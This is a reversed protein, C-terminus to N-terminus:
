LTCLSLLHMEKHLITEEDLHVEKHLYDYIDSTILYTLNSRNIQGLCIINDQMLIYVNLANFDYKDVGTKPEKTKKDIVIQLSSVQYSLMSETELLLFPYELKGNEKYLKLTQNPIFNDVKPTDTTEFYMERQKDLSGM